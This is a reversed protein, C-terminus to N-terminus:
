VYGQTFKHAYFPHINIFFKKVLTSAPISALIIAVPMMALEAVFLKLISPEKWSFKWTSILDLLLHNVFPHKHERM